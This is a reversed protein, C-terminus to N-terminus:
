ALEIANLDFLLSLSLSLSLPNTENNPSKKLEKNGDEREKKKYIESDNPRDFKDM